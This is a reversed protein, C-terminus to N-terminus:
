HLMADYFFFFHCSVSRVHLTSFLFGHYSLFRSSTKRMHNKMRQSHIAVLWSENVDIERRAKEWQMNIKYIFYIYIYKYINLTSRSTAYINDIRHSLILSLIVHFFFPARMIWPSVLFIVSTQTIIAHIETLHVTKRFIKQHLGYGKSGHLYFNSSDDHIIRTGKQRSFM